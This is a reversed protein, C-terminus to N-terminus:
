WTRVRGTDVHIFDLDRYYGVGGLGMAIAADRLRATPVGPLRIDIAKALMHLSHKAVGNRTARLTENSEPSRFGSIVQYEADEHGVQRSLGALIDFLAPDFAHVKANRHDCLFGELQDLAGQVCLGGVRYVVDIRKGTHTNFLRVHVPEISAAAAAHRAGFLSLLGLLVVHKCRGPFFRLAQM